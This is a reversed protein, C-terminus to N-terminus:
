IARIAAAIEAPAEVPVLHGGDLVLARSQPLLRDLDATVEAAV